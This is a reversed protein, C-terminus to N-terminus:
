GPHTQHNGCAGVNTQLFYSSGAGFEGNIRGEAATGNEEHFRGRELWLLQGLKFISRSSGRRGSLDVGKLKTLFEKM